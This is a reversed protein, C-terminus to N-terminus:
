SERQAERRLTQLARVSPWITAGICLAIVGISIAPSIEIWRVTALKVATFALVAFRRTVCTDILRKLM